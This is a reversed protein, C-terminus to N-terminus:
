RFVLVVALKFWAWGLLGFGVGFPFTCLAVLRQRRGSTLLITLAVGLLVELLRGIGESGQFAIAESVFASGVLAATVGRWLPDGSRWAAGSLGFFPGGILATCLWFVTLRAVHVSSYLLHSIAFFTAVLAVLLMTGAVASRLPRGAVIGILFALLLWIAASNGLIHAPGPVFYYPYISAAGFIAGAAVVLPWLWPTDGIQGWSQGRSTTMEIRDADASAIDGSGNSIVNRRPAHLQL